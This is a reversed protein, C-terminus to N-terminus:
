LIIGISLILKNATGLAGSLANCRWALSTTLAVNGKMPIAVSASASSSVVDASLVRANHLCAEGPSENLDVNQLRNSSSTARYSANGELTMAVGSRFHHLWRTYIGGTASTNRIRRFPDDTQELYSGFAGDISICLHYSPTIRKKVPLSLRFDAIERTYNQREGIKPYSDSSSGLINETGKRGSYSVRLEAGWSIGSFRSADGDTNLLFGAHLDGTFTDSFTLELNNFDRLFQRMHMNGCGLNAFFRDPLSVTQFFSATVDWGFGTYATNKGNNGSFRRYTTGLGTMMYMTIDSLPNYFEVNATQNYVRIGGGLGVAFPSAGIRRSASLKGNLDSVVIKDRPDRARYDLCARYDAEVGWTWGNKRGAYGGSFTYQRRVLDGGVSDGFVYPGVVSYDASNSWAIDRLKGATFDAHGWVTTSSNLQRYSSAIVSGTIQGSGNEAIQTDAASQWIGGLSIGTLSFSALFPMSAPMASTAAINFRAPLSSLATVKETPSTPTTDSAFTEVAAGWLPAATFVSLLTFATGKPISM